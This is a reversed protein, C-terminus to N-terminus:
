RCNRELNTQNSQEHTKQLLAVVADFMQTKLKLVKENTCLFYFYRM